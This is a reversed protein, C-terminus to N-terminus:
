FCRMAEPTLCHQAAHFVLLSKFLLPERLLNLDKFPCQPYQSGCFHLFSSSILAFIFLYLSIFHKCVILQPMKKGKRWTRLQILMLITNVKCVCIETHCTSVAAVKIIMTQFGYRCTIRPKFCNKM